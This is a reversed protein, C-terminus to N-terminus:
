RFRVNSAPQAGSWTAADLVLDPLALDTTPAIRIEGLAAVKDGSRLYALYAGPDLRVEFRGGALTSFAVGIDAMSKSTVILEAQDLNVGEARNLVRGKFNRDGVDVRVVEPPKYASADILATAHHASAIRIAPSLRLDCPVQFSGDDSVAGPTSHFYRGTESRYLVTAYAKTIPTDRPPVLRGRFVPAPKLRTAIRYDGDKTVEFESEALEFGTRWLLVQYRGPGALQFTGDHVFRIAEKTRADRVLAVVGEVTRGSASDVAEYVCRAIPLKRVVVEVSRSEKRAPDLKITQNEAVVYGEEKLGAPLDIEITHAKALRDYELSIAVQGSRLNYVASRLVPKESTHVVLIASQLDGFPVRRQPEEVKFFKLELVPGRPLRWAWERPGDPKLAIPPLAFDRLACDLYWTGKVQYRRDPFGFSAVKGQADTTLTRDNITSADPGGQFHDTVDVLHVTKKAIPADGYQLTFTM